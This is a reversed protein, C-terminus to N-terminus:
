NWSHAMEPSLSLSLLAPYTDRIWVRNPQIIIFWCVSKEEGTLSALFYLSFGGQTITVKHILTMGFNNEYFPVTKEPDKIRLMVQALEWKHTAFARVAAESPKHVSM